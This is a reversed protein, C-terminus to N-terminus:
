FSSLLFVIIACRAIFDLRWRCCWYVQWLQFTWMLLSAAVCHCISNIITAIVQVPLRAPIDCIGIHIVDNFTYIEGARFYFISTANLGTELLRLNNSKVLGIRKCQLWYSQLYIVLLIKAAAKHNATYTRWLSTMPEFRGRVVLFYYYFYRFFGLLINPECSIKVSWLYGENELNVIIKLEKSSIVALLSSGSISVTAEFNHKSVSQSLQCQYLYLYRCSVEPIDHWQQSAEISGWLIVCACAGMCVCVWAGVGVGVGVGVCM